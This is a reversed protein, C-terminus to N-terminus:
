LAVSNVKYKNSETGLESNKQQRTINFGVHHLAGKLPQCSVLKIQLPLQFVVIFIERGPEKTRMAVATDHPVTLPGEETETDSDQAVEQLTRHCM